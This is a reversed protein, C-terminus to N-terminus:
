CSYVGMSWTCVCACVYMFVYAFVCLCMCMCVSVSLCVFPCTVKQSDTVTDSLLEELGEFVADPLFAIPMNGGSREEQVERSGCYLVNLAEEKQNTHKNFFPVNSHIAKVVEECTYVYPDEKHEELDKASLVHWKMSINPCAVKLLKCLQQHLIDLLLFCNHADTFLRSQYSTHDEPSARAIFTIHNNMEDTTVLCVASKEKVIFADKFLRIENYLNCIRVQFRNFFGPPLCDLEEGCQVRRGHYHTYGAGPEWDDPMLTTTIFCPFNYSVPSSGRLEYCLEFSTLIQILADLHPDAHAGLLKALEDASIVSRGVQNALNPTAFEGPALATGLM